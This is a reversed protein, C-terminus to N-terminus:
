TQLNRVLVLLITSSSSYTAVVTQVYCRFYGDLVRLSLDFTLSDHTGPLSLGLLPATGIVGMM